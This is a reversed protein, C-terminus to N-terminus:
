SSKRELALFNEIIQKGSATKFSEPHFQVGYIPHSVHEISMIERGNIKVSAEDSVVESTTVLYKNPFTDPDIMLSHYRMVEEHEEVGVMLKSNKTITLKSSKGHMPVTARRLTAGFAYAIGQHGLCVGLIPLGKTGYKTIVELCNGFYHRDDPSGPGPGIVVRDYTGKELEPLFNQDNRVVDVDGGAETLLHLLNYTFSDYNDILLVKM